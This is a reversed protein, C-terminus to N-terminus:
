KNKKKLSKINITMYLVATIGLGIIIIYGKKDSFVGTAPITSRENTFTVNNNEGIIEGRGDTRNGTGKNEQITTIYQNTNAETETVTYNIGNKIDKIKMSEGGKLTFTANGSSNFTLEDQITGSSTTKEVNYSGTIVNSGDNLNVTFNFNRDTEAMNGILQKNIILNGKLSNTINTVLVLDDDIEKYSIDTAYNSIADEAITYTIRKGNEYLLLKELKLPMETCPITIKGTPLIYGTKEVEGDENLIVESNGNKVIVNPLDNTFDTVQTTQTQGSDNTITKSISFTLNDPRTNEANEADNWEKQVDLSIELTNTVNFISEFGLEYFYGAPGVYIRGESSLNGRYIEENGNEDVVKYQIGGGGEHYLPVELEEYMSTTTAYVKGLEDVLKVTNAYNAGIAVKRMLKTSEDTTRYGAISDEEFYYTIRGTETTDTTANTLAGYVPLDQITIPLRNCPVEVRTIYNGYGDSVRSVYESDIMYSSFEEYSIKEKINGIVKYPTFTLSETRTNYANEDDEWTKNLVVKEVIDNTVMNQYTKVFFKGSYINITLNM